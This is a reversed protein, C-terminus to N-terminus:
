FLPFIQGTPLFIKYAEINCYDKTVLNKHQYLKQASASIVETTSASIANMKFIVM